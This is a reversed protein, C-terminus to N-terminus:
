QREITVAGNRTIARIRAGGSGLRTRIDRGITGQVMVPFDIRVRGNVTGTELEASYREPLSMHVGGNRTEVDLGAGDWRDGALSIKLGGNTTGGRIDGAVNDLAVGGNTARFSATGRFEAIAIGGNLTTLNLRADRPVDLEFSVGWHERSRVTPGTARIRGSSTEVRVDNAIRRADAM